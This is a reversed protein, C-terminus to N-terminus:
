RLGMKPGGASPSVSVALSFCCPKARVEVQFNWSEAGVASPEALATKVREDEGEVV